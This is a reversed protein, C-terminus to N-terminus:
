TESPKVVASQVISSLLTSGYAFATFGSLAERDYIDYRVEKLLTEKFKAPM